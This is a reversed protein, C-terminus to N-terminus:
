DELGLSLRLVYVGDAGGEVGLVARKDNSIAGLMSHLYRRDRKDAESIKDAPEILTCLVLFDTVHRTKAVDLAVGYAAAKAVLAGLLTPRLVTGTREGVTVEVAESRHLAQQAGPTQLTTGGRAGKRKAAREGVGSPILVDIQAGGRVWRHQHGQPSTGDPAFGLDALVTTYTMLVGPDGPQGRVDLVTDLDITPRAPSARREACWLHVMQGGVLTWGTPHADYVDFLATWGDRQADSMAPMVITM